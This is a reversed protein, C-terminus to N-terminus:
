WLLSSTSIITLNIVHLVSGFITFTSLSECSRLTQGSLLTSISIMQLTLGSVMDKREALTPAVMAMFM